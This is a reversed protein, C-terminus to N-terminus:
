ELTYTVQVNTKFSPIGIKNVINLKKAENVDLFLDIHGKEKLMKTFFDDPHGTNRAMFTFIINNLKKTLAIDVEMETLKGGTISSIDHILFTTNKGAYRMGEAGAMFLVAGCSMAKGMAITAVPIKSNQITDIMRMLAMVGGGPSDIVVPIVKQGTTQAADMQEQFAQASELSFENVEIVIPQNVIVTKGQINV